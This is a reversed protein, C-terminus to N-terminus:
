HILGDKIDMIHTQYEKLIFEPLENDVIIIHLNKYTKHLDLIKEYLINISKKDEKHSTSINKHISDLILLRPHYTDDIKLITEFLAIFYSVMFYVKYGGSSVSLYDKNGIKPLFNNADISINQKYEMDIELQNIIKVFNDRLENIVRNTREKSIKQLANLKSEIEKELKDYEQVDLYMKDVREHMGKIQSKTDIDSQIKGTQMCLERYKAFLPTLIRDEQSTIQEKLGSISFNLKEIDTNLKSLKDKVEEMLKFLEQEKLDVVYLKKQLESDVDDNNEYEKKCIPCHDKTEVVPVDKGCCPCVKFVFTDLINSSTNALFLKERESKYSNLLKKWNELLNTLYIREENKKTLELEKGGIENLLANDNLKNKEISQTKEIQDIEVNLEALKNRQSDVLYNLDEAKELDYSKFFSKISEIKETLEQKKTAYKLREDELSYLEVPNMKFIVKFASIAKRLQWIDGLGFLDKSDSREQWLYVYQYIDRFSILSPKSSKTITDPIAVYAPTKLLALIHPSFDTEPDKSKSLSLKIGDNKRFTEVKGEKIYMAALPRKLERCLVYDTGNINVELLIEDYQILQSVDPPSSGGLGYYILKALLSKGKGTRAYVFLLGDRYLNDIIQAKGDRLQIRNINLGKEM